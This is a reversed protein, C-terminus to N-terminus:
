LFGGHRVDGVLRRAGGPRLRGVWLPPGNHPDTQRAGGQGSGCRFEAEGGYMEVLALLLLPGAIAAGRHELYGPHGTPTVEDATSVTTSVRGGVALTDGRPVGITSAGAVDSTAAGGTQGRPCCGIHGRHGRRRLAYRGVSRSRLGDGLVCQEGRQARPTQVGGSYKDGAATRVELRV